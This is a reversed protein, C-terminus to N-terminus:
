YLYTFSVKWCAVKCCAYFEAGSCSSTINSPCSWGYYFLVQIRWRQRKGFNNSHLPKDVPFLKFVIIETWFHAIIIFWQESKNIINNDEMLRIMWVLYELSAVLELKNKYKESAPWDRIIVLLTDKGHKAMLRETRVEDMARNWSTGRGSNFKEEVKSCILLALLLVFIYFFKYLNYWTSTKM